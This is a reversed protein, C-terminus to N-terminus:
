ILQNYQHRLALLYFTVFSVRSHWIETLNFFTKTVYLSPITSYMKVSQNNPSLLYKNSHYLVVSNEKKNAKRYYKPRRGFSGEYIENKYKCLNNM